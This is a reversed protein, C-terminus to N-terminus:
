CRAGELPSAGARCGHGLLPWNGTGWSHIHAMKPPYTPDGRLSPGREWGQSGACQWSSVFRGLVMGYRGMNRLGVDQYSPDRSMFANTGSCSVLPMVM